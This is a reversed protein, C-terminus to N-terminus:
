DDDEEGFIKKFSEPDQLKIEIGKDAPVVEHIKEKKKLVEDYRIIM